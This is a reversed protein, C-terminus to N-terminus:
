YNTVFPTYDKCSQVIGEVSGIGAALSIVFCLLDISELWFWKMSFRKIQKQVKYMQIPFYITLQLGM